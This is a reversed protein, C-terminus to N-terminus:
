LLSNRNLPVVDITARLAVLHLPDPDPSSTIHNLHRVAAVPELALYYAIYLGAHIASVNLDFALYDNFTRHFAPIFSPVPLTSALM